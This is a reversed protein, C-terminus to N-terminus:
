LSEKEGLLIPLFLKVLTGEKIVSNIQIGYKQGYNLKLRESVNCIGIHDTSSQEGAGTQPLHLVDFGKGNDEIEIYLYKADKYFRISIKGMETNESFAYLICNEVFPQLILKPIKYNEIEQPLEYFVDFNMFRMKEIYIYSDLLEKEEKLTIEESSNYTVSKMLKIMSEIMKKINNQKNVVAMWKITNLTNYIFHPGIQMSLVKIKEENKAKEEERINDILSQIEQVMYNYNNILMGMEDTKSIQGVEEFKRETVNRMGQSLIKMPRFFEKTLISYAILIFLVFLIAIIVSINKIKTVDKFIESKDTVTLLVWDNLSSKVFVVIKEENTEKDHYFFNGEQEVYVKKWFSGELTEGIVDKESSTVVQYDNSILYYQSAKENFIKNKFISKFIDDSFFLWLSGTNRQVSNVARGLVFNQPYQNYSAEMTETPLWVVKGKRELIRAEYKQFYEDINLYNYGSQYMKNDLKLLASAIFKDSNVTGSLFQQVYLYDDEYCESDVYSKMTENYYLTMSTNQYAELRFDMNQLAEKMINNKNEIVNNLIYLSYSNIFFGIFFISPIIICVVFVLIMKIKVSFFIKKINKNM